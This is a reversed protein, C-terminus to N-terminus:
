EVVSALYAYKEIINLIEERNDKDSFENMCHVVSKEYHERDGALLTEPAIHFIEALKNIQDVTPVICGKLIGYLVDISCNLNECLYNNTLNNDNSLKEVMNGFLRLDEM